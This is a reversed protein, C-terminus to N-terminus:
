SPELSFNPKSLTGGVKFSILNQENKTLTFLVASAEKGLGALFLHHPKIKGYLNLISKGIEQNLHISGSIRADLQLGKLLCQRIMLTQNQIKLDTEISKFDLNKLMFLPPDLETKFDTATVTATLTEIKRPDMQYFAEGKLTGSVKKGSIPFLSFIKHLSLGTLVINASAPKGSAPEIDVFGNIKGDYASANFHYTKKSRFLTFVNRSIELKKIFLIPTGSYKVTSDSFTLGLPLSPNLKGISASFAPKINPLKSEIMQKISVAPFFSYLFVATTLVAFLGYGVWGWTQKMYMSDKAM